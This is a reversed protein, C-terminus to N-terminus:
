TKSTYIRNKHAYAIIRYIATYLCTKRRFQEVNNGLPAIKHSSLRLDRDFSLFLCSLLPSARVANINQINNPCRYQLGLSALYYGYFTNLSPITPLLRLFVGCRVFANGTDDFLPLHGTM